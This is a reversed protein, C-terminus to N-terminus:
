GIVNVNVSRTKTGSACKVKYQGSQSQNVNVLKLTFINNGDISHDYKIGDIRIEEDNGDLWQFEDSKEAIYQLEVTHGERVSTASLLIVLGCEPM